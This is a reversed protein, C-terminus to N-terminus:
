GADDAATVGAVSRRSDGAASLWGLDALRRALVRAALAHGEPTWHADNAYYLSRGAAQEARFAPLLDLAEIGLGDLTDRITVTVKDRDFASDAEGGGWAARYAKWAADDVQWRAPAIAVLYRVDNEECWDRIEALSERGAPWSVERIREPWESRGVRELYHSREALGSALYLGHLRDRLFAYLHSRTRLFLRLSRLPHRGPSVLRGGKVKPNELWSDPRPDELDNGAYLLHVVVDPHWAAQRGRLLRASRLPGYGGVGGNRVVWGPDADGLEAALRAPYAEEAEVGVGFTFSDGIALLRSAGPSSAEPGADPVRYGEEDVRIHVRYEPLRVENRYDPRLSYGAHPDERFMGLTVDSRQPWFVRLVGEALLVAVCLGALVVLADTGRSRKL